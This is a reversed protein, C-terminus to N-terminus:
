NNIQNSSTKHRTGFSTEEWTGDKSGAKEFNEEKIWFQWRRRDVCLKSATEAVKTEWKKKVLTWHRCKWSLTLPCWFHLSFHPFAFPLRLIFSYPTQQGFPV